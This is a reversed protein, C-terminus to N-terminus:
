LQWQRRTGVCHLYSRQLSYSLRFIHKAHHKRAAVLIYGEISAPMYRLLIVRGVLALMFTISVHPVGTKGQWGCCAHRAAHVLTAMGHWPVDSVNSNAGLAVFFRLSQGLHRSQTCICQPPACASNSTYLSATVASTDPVSPRSSPQTRM